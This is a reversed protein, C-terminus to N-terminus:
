ISKSTVSPNDIPAPLTNALNSMRDGDNDLTADAAKPNLGYLIEM